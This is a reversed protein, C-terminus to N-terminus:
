GGIADEAEELEGILGEVDPGVEQGRPVERQNLKTKKYPQQQQRQKRRHQVVTWGPSTKLYAPYLYYFSTWNPLETTTQLHLYGKHSVSKEGSSRKFGSSM